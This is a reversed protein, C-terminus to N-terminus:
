RGHGDSWVSSLTEIRLLLVFGNHTDVLKISSLFRGRNRRGSTQKTVWTKRWLLVKIKIFYMKYKKIDIDPFNSSGPSRQRQEAERQRGRKLCSSSFFLVFFSYVFEPLPKPSDITTFEYIYLWTLATFIHSHWYSPTLGPTSPRKWLVRQCLVASTQKWWWPGQAASRLGPPQKRWGAARNCLIGSSSSLDGSGFM